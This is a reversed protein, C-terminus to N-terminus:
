YRCNGRDHKGTFLILYTGIQEKSIYEEHGVVKRLSLFEFVLQERGCVVLFVPIQYLNKYQIKEDAM